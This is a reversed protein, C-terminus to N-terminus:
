FLGDDEYDFSGFRNPARRARKNQFASTEEDDDEEGEEDTGECELAQSLIQNYLPDLDLDLMPLAPPAASVPVHIEEEDDDDHHPYQVDPPTLQVAHHPIPQQHAAHQQHQHHYHGLVPQQPLSAVTTFGALCPNTFMRTMKDSATWWVFASASAYITQVRELVLEKMKIPATSGASEESDVSLLDANAQYLKKATTETFSKTKETAFGLVRAMELLNAELQEEKKRKEAEAIQLLYKLKLTITCPAATM